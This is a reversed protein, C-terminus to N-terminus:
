STRGILASKRGIARKSWARRRTLVLLSNFFGTPTPHRSHNTPPPCQAHPEVIRRRGTVAEALTPVMAM